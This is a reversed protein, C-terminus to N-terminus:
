YDRPIVQFARNRGGSKSKRVLSNVKGEWFEVMRRVEGLDAKTLTRDMLRYSQHTTIELEAELWEELHKQAVELSIGYRKKEAM